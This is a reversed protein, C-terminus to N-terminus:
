GRRRAVIVGARVGYWGSMACLGSVAILALLPSWLLDRLGPRTAGPALPAAAITAAFVAVVLLMAIVGGAAGTRPSIGAVLGAMGAILGVCWILLLAFAVDSRAHVLRLVVTTAAVSLVGIAVAWLARSL